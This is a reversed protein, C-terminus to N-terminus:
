SNAPIQKKLEAVENRLQNVEFRLSANEKRFTLNEEELARTREINDAMRKNLDDLLLKYSETDSSRRKSRLLILSTLAGSGIVALIIQTLDTM